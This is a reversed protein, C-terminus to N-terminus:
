KNVRVASAFVIQDFKRNLSTSTFNTMVMGDGWSVKDGPQVQTVPAAVWVTAGNQLVELYTYGGGNVVSKVEGSSGAPAAAQAAPQAAGMPPHAGGAQGAMPQSGHPAVGTPAAGAPGWANVFLIRDFTRGLSKSAFNTMVASDGWQVTDGVQVPIQGGAIWVKEGNGQEVEAYSYGGGQLLQLIKGSNPTAASVAVPAAPAAAQPAPSAPAAAEEKKSCAALGVSAAVAVLLWPKM